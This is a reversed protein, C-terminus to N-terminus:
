FKVTSMQNEYIQLNTVPNYIPEKGFTDNDKLNLINVIVPVVISPDKQLEQGQDKGLIEVGIKILLFQFQWFSCEPDGPTSAKQAM